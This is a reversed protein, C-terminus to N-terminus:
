KTCSILGSCLLGKSCLTLAEISLQKPCMWVNMVKEDIVSHYRKLGIPGANTSPLKTTQRWGYFPPFFTTILIGVQVNFPKDLFFDFSSYQKKMAQDQKRSQQCIKGLTHDCAPFVLRVGKQVSSKVQVNYKHQQRYNQWYYKNISLGLILFGSHPTIATKVHICLRTNRAQSTPSPRWVIVHAGLGYPACPAMSYVEFTPSLIWSDPIATNLDTYEIVDINMPWKWHWCEYIM